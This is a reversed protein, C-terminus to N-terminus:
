QRYDTATIRRTYYLRAENKKPESLHRLYALDGAFPRHGSIVDTMRHVFSPTAKQWVQVLVTEPNRGFRAVHLQAYGGFTHANDILFADICNKRIKTCSALLNLRATNNSTSTPARSPGGRSFSFALTSLRKQLLYDGHSIFDFEDATGASAM